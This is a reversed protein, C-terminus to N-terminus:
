VGEEQIRGMAAVLRANERATRRETRVSALDYHDICHFCGWVEFPQIKEDSPWLPSAFRRFVYMACSNCKVLLKNPTCNGCVPLPCKAGPFMMMKVSPRGLPRIKYLTKNCLGCSWFSERGGIAKRVCDPHAFTIAWRWYSRGTTSPGPCGAEMRIRVKGKLIPAACIQCTSRRHGIERYFKIPYRSKVSFVSETHRESASFAKSM